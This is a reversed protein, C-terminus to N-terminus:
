GRYGTFIQMSQNYAIRSEEEKQLDEKYKDYTILQPFVVGDVYSSGYSYPSLYSIYPRNGEKFEMMMQDQMDLVSMNPNDLTTKLLSELAVSQEIPEQVFKVLNGHKRLVCLYDRNVEKMKEM